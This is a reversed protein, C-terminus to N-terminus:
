EALERRNKQTYEKRNIPYPEITHYNVKINKQKAKQSTLIANLGTGFGIELINLEKKNKELLGNKIFIYEAEVIAGHKSHYCENIEPVFISHSGDNTIILKKNM